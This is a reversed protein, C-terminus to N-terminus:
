TGKKHRSVLGPPSLPKRPKGTGARTYTARRSFFGESEQSSRSTPYFFEVAFRTRLENTSSKEEKRTNLSEYSFFNKSPSNEYYSTCSLRTYFLSLARPIGLILFWILITDYVLCRPLLQPPLLEAEETHCVM